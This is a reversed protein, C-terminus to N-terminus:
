QVPQVERAQTRAKGSRAQLNKQVELAENEGHASFYRYNGLKRIAECAQM